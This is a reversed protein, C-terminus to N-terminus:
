RSEHRRGRWPMFVFRTLSRRGDYSFDLCFPEHSKLRSKQSAALPSRSTTQNSAKGNWRLPKAVRLTCTPRLRIALAGTSYRHNRRLSGFNQRAIPDPGFLVKSFYLDPLTNQVVREPKVHDVDASVM